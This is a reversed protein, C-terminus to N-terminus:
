LYSRRCLKWKFLHGFWDISKDFVVTIHQWTNLIEIPIILRVLQTNMLVMLSMYVHIAEMPVVGNISTYGAGSGQGKNKSVIELDQSVSTRYVWVSITLADNDGFDLANVDGGFSLYDGTGDFTTGSGYKEM